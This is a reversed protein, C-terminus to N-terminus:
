DIKKNNIFHNTIIFMTNVILEWPKNKIYTIAKEYNPFEGAHLLQNGMVIKCKHTDINEVIAFPTGAIDRVRFDNTQNDKADLTKKEKEM